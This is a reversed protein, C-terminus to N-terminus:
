CMNLCHRSVHRSFHWVIDFFHLGFFTLLFDVLLLCIAFCATKKSNPTQALTIKYNSPTQKVVTMRAGPTPFGPDTRRRMNRKRHSGRSGTSRTSGSSGSSGACFESLSMKFCGERLKPVNLRFIPVWKLTDNQTDARINAHSSQYRPTQGSM